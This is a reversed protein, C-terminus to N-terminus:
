GTVNHMYKLCADCDHTIGRRACNDTIIQKAKLINKAYMLRCSTYRSQSLHGHLFMCSHVKNCDGKIRCHINRPLNRIEGDVQFHTMLLDQETFQEVKAGFYLTYNGDRWRQCLSDATTLSPQVIFMGTNVYTLNVPAKHAQMFQAHKLEPYRSAYMMNPHLRPYLNALSLVSSNWIGDADFFVVNRCQHLTWIHLKVFTRWRPPKPHVRDMWTSNVNLVVAGITHLCAQFAVPLDHAIVIVSEFKNETWYSALNSLAENFLLSSSGSVVTVLCVDTVKRLGDIGNSERTCIM